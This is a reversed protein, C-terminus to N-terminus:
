SVFHEDVKSCGIPRRVREESASPGAVSRAERSVEHLGAEGNEARNGVSDKDCRVDALVEAVIVAEPKGLVELHQAVGRDEGDVAEVIPLVAVADLALDFFGSAEADGDFVEGSVFFINVSESFSIRM